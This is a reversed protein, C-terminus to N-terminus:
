SIARALLSEPATAPSRIPDSVAVPNAFADYVLIGYINPARSTEEIVKQLGEGSLGRSELALGLATAYALTEREAAPVLMEKRQRTALGSYVLMILAVTPLLIALLRTSLNM